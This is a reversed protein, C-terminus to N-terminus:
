YVTDAAKLAAHCNPGEEYNLMGFKNVLGEEIAQYESYTITCVLQGEMMGSRNWKTIDDKSVGERDFHHVSAIPHAENRCICLVGVHNGRILLSVAVEQQEAVCSHGLAKPMSTSAFSLSELWPVEGLLPPHTMVEAQERTSPATM